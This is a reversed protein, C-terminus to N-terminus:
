HYLIIQGSRKTSPVTYHLTMGILNAHISRLMNQGILIDWSGSPSVLLDSIIILNAESIFVKACPM